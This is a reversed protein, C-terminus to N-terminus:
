LLNIIVVFLCFLASIVCKNNFEEDYYGDRILKEIRNTGNLKDREYDLRRSELGIYEVNNYVFVNIQVSMHKEVNTILEMLEPRDVLLKDKLYETSLSYWDNINLLRWLKYEM